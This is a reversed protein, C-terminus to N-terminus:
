PRARLRRSRRASLGVLVALALAWGRGDGARGAAVDCGTAPMTTITPRAADAANAPAADAPASADAPAPRLRPDHVCRSMETACVWGEPCATCDTTTCERADGTVRCVYESNCQTDSACRDGVEGGRSEPPTVWAPAAYRDLSAVRAAQARIWDAYQDVRTYIPSDCSNAAGRSLVGFVDGFTDLAPGGSDGRCTGTDALWEREEMVTVGRSVLRGVFEVNLGSRMRRTGSGTGAGSTSGYGTATFVETREPALDLRPRIPAVTTIPASLRLLAIDRGCFSVGLSGPPTIVEMARVSRGGPGIVPETTVYFSTAPYPAQTITTTRAVGGITANSCVIGEGVVPSVCHRATLVLTPSLLSGTCTGLGGGGVITVGVVNLHTTDNVGGYIPQAAREPAADVACAVLGAALAALPLPARFTASTMTPHEGDPGDPAFRRPRYVPIPPPSLTAAGGRRPTVPAAIV